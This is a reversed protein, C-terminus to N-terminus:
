GGGSGTPTRTVLAQKEVVEGRVGGENALARRNVQRGHLAGV